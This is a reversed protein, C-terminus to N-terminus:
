TCDGMESGVGCPKDNETYYYRLPVRIAEREEATIKWGAELAASEVFSLASYFCCPVGGHGIGDAYCTLCEPEYPSDDKDDAICPGRAGCICVAQELRRM